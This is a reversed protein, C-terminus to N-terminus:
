AARRKKFLGAIGKITFPLLKFFFALAASLLVMGIGACLVSMFIFGLGIPANTFLRIIGIVFAIVAAVICCIAAAGIALFAAIIALIAPVVGCLLPIGVFIGAFILLVILWTSMSKKQEPPPPPPYDQQENQGAHQYYDDFMGKNGTSDDRDTKFPTGAAHFDEDKPTDGFVDNPKKLSAFVGTSNQPMPKSEKYKLYVESRSYASTEGIISRALAYPKGLDEIVAQENEAGAEDFYESYFSVAMDREEKPLSILDSELEALYEERTM